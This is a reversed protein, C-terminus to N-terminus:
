VLRLFVKLRRLDDKRASDPWLALAGKKGSEKERWQIVVLWPLVLQEGQLDVAVKKQNRMVWDQQQGYGMSSIMASRQQRLCHFGTLLLLLILGSKFIWSLGSLALAIWALVLVGAQLYLAIRSPKLSIISFEDM